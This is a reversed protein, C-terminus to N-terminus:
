ENLSKLWKNFNEDYLGLKEKPEPTIYRENTVRDLVEEFFSAGFRTSFIFNDQYEKYFGQKLTIFHAGFNPSGETTIFNLFWIAGKCYEIIETKTKM